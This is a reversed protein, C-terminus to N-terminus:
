RLSPQSIVGIGTPELKKREPLYKKGFGRSGFIVLDAIDPIKDFAKQFPTCWVKGFKKPTRNLVYVKEDLAHKWYSKPLAATRLMARVSGVLTQVMREVRGNQFKLGPTSLNWASGIEALYTSMVENM